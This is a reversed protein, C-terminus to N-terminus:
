FGTPNKQSGPTRGDTKLARVGSSRNITSLPNTTSPCVSKISDSTCREANALDASASYFTKTQVVSVCRETLAHKKNLQLSPFVQYLYISLSSLVTQMHLSLAKPCLMVLKTPSQFRWQSKCLLRARGVHKRRMKKRAPTLTETFIKITVKYHFQSLYLEAIATFSRQLSCRKISLPQKQVVSYLFDCTHGQCENLTKKSTKPRRNAITTLM